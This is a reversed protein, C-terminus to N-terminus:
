FLLERMEKKYILPFLSSIRGLTPMPDDFSIVDDKADGSFFGPILKFRDPNHIFHMIDGPILWRSKIGLKYHDVTEIDGDVALKYLLYPFDVGSLIALQLSGWFRPNIEMLKPTGDRADVRFEVMAVGTWKLSALLSLAMEEAKKNSVSERLTSPGGTVPYERLRKYVFSAKPESSYNLLAGVGYAGGNPIYEQIIPYPYKKHVACYSDFLDSSKKVYVIGRSGSSSRPKIVVPYDISDKYTEIERLTEPFITKPCPINHSLAFKMLWGKDQINSTLEYDAFPLRTHQEIESRHKVLLMQTSLEMPLVMDYSNLRLEDKLWKIFEDPSFVPSPYLVNRNSYKSFLAAACRTWEGTTVHFGRKGLSRVAALTKNWMGDLILVSRQGPRQEHEEM